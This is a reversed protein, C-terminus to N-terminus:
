DSNEGRRDRVYRLWRTRIVRESPVSDPGFKPVFKALLRRRLHAVPVGERALREAEQVVEPVDQARADNSKWQAARKQRLHKGIWLSEVAVRRAAEALLWGCRDLPIELEVLRQVLRQFHLVAMGEQVAITGPRKDEGREGFDWRWDFRRGHLARALVALRKNVPDQPADPRPRRQRAVEEWLEEPSDSVIEVRLVHPRLWEAPVIWDRRTMGVHPIRTRVWAEEMMPDTNFFTGVGLDEFQVLEGDTVDLVVRLTESGCHEYLLIPDDTLTVGRPEQEANPTRRWGLPRDRFGESVIAEAEVRESVHHYLSISM